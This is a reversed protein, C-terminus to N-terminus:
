GAKVHLTGKVRLRQWGYGNIKVLILDRHRWAAQLAAEPTIWHLRHLFILWSVWAHFFGTFTRIHITIQATAM